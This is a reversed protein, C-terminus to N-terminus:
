KGTVRRILEKLIKAGLIENLSGLKRRLAKVVDTIGRGKM